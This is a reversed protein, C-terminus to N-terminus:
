RNEKILKSLLEAISNISDFLQIMMYEDPISIKFKLEVDVVLKLVEASDFGLENTLSQEDNIAMLHGNKNKLYIKSVINRVKSRLIESNM